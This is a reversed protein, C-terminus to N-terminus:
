LRQSGARARLAMDAAISGRGAARWGDRLSTDHAFVCVWGMSRAGIAAMRRSGIVPGTRHLECFSRQSELSALDARRLAAQQYLTHVGLHPRAGDIQQLHQDLPTV